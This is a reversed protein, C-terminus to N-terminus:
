NTNYRHHHGFAHVPKVKLYRLNPIKNMAELASFDEDCHEYLLSMIKGRSM